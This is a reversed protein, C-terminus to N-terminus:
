VAIPLIPLRGDPWASGREITYPTLAQFLAQRQEVSSLVKAMFGAFGAGSSYLLAAAHRLAASQSAAELGCCGSLVEAFRMPRGHPAFMRRSLYAGAETIPLEKEFHLDLGELMAYDYRQEAERCGIVGESQHMVSLQASTLWTLWVTTSADQHPCLTAPMAGYATFHGAFVVAFGELVARTVPIVDGIGFKAALRDPSANSGSAIVPLRGHCAGKPLPRMAGGEFLYSCAPRAFPYSEAHRIRVALDTEETIKGTMVALM